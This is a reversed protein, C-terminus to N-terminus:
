SINLEGFDGRYGGGIGSWGQDGAVEVRCGPGRKEFVEHLCRSQTIGSGPESDPRGPHGAGQDHNRQGQIVDADAFGDDNMSPFDAGRQAGIM